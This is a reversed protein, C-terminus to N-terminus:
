TLTPVHLLRTWSAMDCNDDKNNYIVRAFKAAMPLEYTWQQVGSYIPTSIAHTVALYEAVTYEGAAVAQVLVTESDGITGDKIFLRDGVDESALAVELTKQAAAAQADLTTSAATVVPSTFTHAATWLSESVAIEVTIEMGSNAVSAEIPATEILLISTYSADQEASAAGVRMDGAVIALWPDIYEIYKTLAM